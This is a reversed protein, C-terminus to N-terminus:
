GFSRGRAPHCDGEIVYILVRGLVCRCTFQQRASVRASLFTFLESVRVRQSHRIAKVALSFFRHTLLSRKDLVPPACIRWAWDRAPSSTMM